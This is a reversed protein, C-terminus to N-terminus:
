WNIGGHKLSSTLWKQSTLRQALTAAQNDGGLLIRDSSGQSITVKIGQAEPTLGEIITEKLGDFVVPQRLALKRDLASLQAESPAVIASDGNDKRFTVASGEALPVNTEARLQGELPKLTLQLTNGKGYVAWECSWKSKCAPM